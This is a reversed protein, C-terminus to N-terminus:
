IQSSNRLSIAVVGLAFRTRVVGAKHDFVLELGEFVCHKVVFMGNYRCDTSYEVTERADLLLSQGSLKERLRYYGWAWRAKISSLLLCFLGLPIVCM